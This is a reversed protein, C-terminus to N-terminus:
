SGVISNLANEPAFSSLTNRYEEPLQSWADSLREIVMGLDLEEIRGTRDAHDLVNQFFEDEQGLVALFLGEQSNLFPQVQGSFGRQLFGYLARYQRQAFDNRLELSECNSWAALASLASDRANPSITITIEKNVSMTMVPLNFSNAPIGFILAAINKPVTIELPVNRRGAEAMCRRARTAAAIPTEITM